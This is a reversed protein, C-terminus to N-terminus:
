GVTNIREEVVCGSVEVRGVTILREYIVGDAAEVRCDTKVCKTATFAAVIVDCYTTICTSGEIAYFIVVDVDAVNPYSALGIRDADARAATLGIRVNGSNASDRHRTANAYDDIGATVQACGSGRRAELVLDLWHVPGAFRDQRQFRDREM